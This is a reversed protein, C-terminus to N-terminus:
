TWTTCVTIRVKDMPTQEDTIGNQEPTAGDLIENVSSCAIVNTTENQVDCPALM